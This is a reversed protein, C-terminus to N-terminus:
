KQRGCHPCFTYDGKLRTGCYPCFGGEPPVFGAEDPSAQPADTYQHDAFSEVPPQRLQEYPDDETHIIEMDAIGKESTANVLNFVIGCIAFCIFVIGFLAFPWPAGMNVAAATWIFGFAVVFVGVIAGM